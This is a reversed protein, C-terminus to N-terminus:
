VKEFVERAKVLDQHKEYIKAYGIWLSSMRGVAKEVDVTTIAETFTKVVM